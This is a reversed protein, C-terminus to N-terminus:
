QPSSFITLIPLSFKFSFCKELCSKIFVHSPPLLLVCGKPALLPSPIAIFSLFFDLYFSLCLWLGMVFSYLSQQGMHNVSTQGKQQNPSNTLSKTQTRGLVNDVLFFVKWCQKYVMLSFLSGRFRWKQNWFYGLIVSIYFTYNNATM